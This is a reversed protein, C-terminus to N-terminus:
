TGDISWAETDEPRSVSITSGDPLRLRFGVLRAGNREEQFSREVEVPREVGDIVVARPVEDARGGAYFRIQVASGSPPERLVRPLVPAWLLFAIGALAIIWAEGIAPLLLIALLAAVVRALNYGVDYVAFVRGRVGDPIAQQVMTDVSIKKWAFSFGILFSAVLVSIRGIAPAVGLLALGGIVFAMAVIRPKPVRPELPGVTALGLLTGAGGAAVLWSFSGVGQEFRDRFVVVSILLIIGQVFQDLTISAIPLLARPTRLLIRGGQATERMVHLLDHRLKTEPKGLPVLPTRITAALASTMVWMVVVVAVLPAEGFAQAALGGVAAGILYAFTGGVTAMSNGILLDQSPVLRPMVAGATSLFFRNVSIVLLAGAFYPFAVDTGFLTLLAAAARILPAVALIRRRSWRDIFVGAFPGVLSYPVAFLAAAKAFGVATSQDQPDFVVSSLVAIQFLGDAAQNVIRAAFLHRFDRSALAERARGLTGIM